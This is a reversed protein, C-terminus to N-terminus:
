EGKQKCPKEKMKCPSRMEKMSDIVCSATKCSSSSSTSSGSRYGSSATSDSQQSSESRHSSSQRSSESQSGSKSAESPHNSESRSSESISDANAFVLSNQVGIAPTMSPSVGAGFNPPGFNAGDNSARFKPSASNPASWLSPSNSPSDSGGFNYQRFGYKPMEFRHFYPTQDKHNRLRAPLYLRPPEVIDLDIDSLARPIM